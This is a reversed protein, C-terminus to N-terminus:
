ARRNRRPPLWHAYTLRVIRGYDNDSCALWVQAAEEDTLSKERPGNEEYKNTGVVPNQDCLGEGIAWRFFASLSARARNATTNGSRKAIASAEAAVNARGISRLTLGHLPKWDTQLHRETQQYSRPRMSAERLELYIAVAASFTHSAEKRITARENAPDKHNVLAAAHKEATKRADAATVKGVKGCNM